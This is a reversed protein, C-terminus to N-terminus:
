RNPQGIVRRLLKVLWAFLGLSTPKRSEWPAIPPTGSAGWLGRQLGHRGVSKGPDETLAYPEADAYAEEVTMRDDRLLPLLSKRLKRACSETTGTAAYISAHWPLETTATDIVILLRAQSDPDLRFNRVAGTKLKAVGLSLWAVGARPRALREAIRERIQEANVYSKRHVSFGTEILDKVPIARAKLRHGAQDETHQPFYLERLLYEDDSVVGPSIEPAASRGEDLHLGRDTM